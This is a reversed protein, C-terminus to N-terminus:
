GGRNIERSCFDTIASWIEGADRTVASAVLLPLSDFRKGCPQDAHPTPVGGGGEGKSSYIGMDADKVDFM